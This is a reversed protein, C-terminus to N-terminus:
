DCRETFTHGGEVGDSHQYKQFDHGNQHWSVGVAYSTKGDYPCSATSNCSRATAGLVLGLIVFMFVKMAITKGM